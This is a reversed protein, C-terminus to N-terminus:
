KRFAPFIIKDIIDIITTQLLPHSTQNSASDLSRTLPIGAAIMTHLNWSFMARHKTKVGNLMGSLKQFMAATKSDPKVGRGGAAELGTRSLMPSQNIDWDVTNGLRNSPEKGIQAM